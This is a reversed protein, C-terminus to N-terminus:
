PRLKREPAQPGNNCAPKAHGLRAQAQQNDAHRNQKMGDTNRDLANWSWRRKRPIFHTYIALTIAPNAHGLQRSVYALDEGRALNVSAYTHRLAHPSRIRVGATRQARVWDAYLKSYDMPGGEKAHFLWPSPDDKGTKIRDQSRKAALAKLAQYLDKGMDVTRHGVKGKTSEEVKNHGSPINRQVEITRAKYDIDSPLLGRAEGVRMGTRSMCLALEYTDPEFLTHKTQLIDEIAYLEEPTYVDSRGVARDQKQRRYFPSLDAVPNTPVLKERVAEAMMARLTMVMLRISDRSYKKEEGPPSADAANVEERNEKVKRFRATSYTGEAKKCVFEKLLPYDVKTLLKQGLDPIIHHKLNSSYSIRTSLKLDKKELELEWRRAFEAVTPATQPAPLPTPQRFMRLAEMGYLDIASTIKEAVEQAREQSSFCRAVRRQHYDIKVWWKGSGRPLERVKVAM